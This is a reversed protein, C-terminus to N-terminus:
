NITDVITDDALTPLLYKFREIMRNCLQEVPLNGSLIQNRFFGQFNELVYASNVEIGCEYTEVDETLHIITHTTPRIPFGFDILQQVYQKLVASAETINAHEVPSPDFGGLLLVSYQLLMINHLQYDQLIGDFLPFLNYMMCDRLEHHKYKTGCTTLSRLYRDFESPKCAKFLRIRNDVEAIHSSKLKGESKVSAIGILRRGFAGATLTHMPDIVFGSVMPFGFDYFPSVDHVSAVHDDVCDDDVCYPLFDEDLRPPTNLEVF